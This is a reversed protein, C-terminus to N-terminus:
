LCFSHVSPIFNQKEELSDYNCGHGQCEFCHKGLHDAIQIKFFYQSTVSHVEFTYTNPGFGPFKNKITQKNVEEMMTEREKGPM